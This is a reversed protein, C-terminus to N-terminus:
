SKHNHMQYIMLSLRPKNKERDQWLNGGELSGYIDRPQVMKDICFDDLLLHFVWKFGMGPNVDEEPVEQERDNEKGRSYHM